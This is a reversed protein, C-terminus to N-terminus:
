HPSGTPRRRSRSSPVLLGHVDDVRRCVEPVVDRGLREHSHGDGRVLDGLPGFPDAFGEGRVAPERQRLRGFVAGRGDGRDVMRPEDPEELDGPGLHPSLADISREQGGVRIRITRHEFAHGVLRDTREDALGDMGAAARAEPAEVRRRWQDSARVHRGTRGDIDCQGRRVQDQGPRLGSVPQAPWGAVVGRPRHVAAIAEEVVRRDRGLGDDPRAALGDRDEIDVIVVAVAALLDEPAAAVDPIHGDVGIGVAIVRVEQSPGVLRALAVPCPLVQVDRERGPRRVVLVEPGDVLCELRDGRRGTRDDDDREPEVRVPEVRDPREGQRGIDVVLDPPARGGEPSAQHDQLLATVM